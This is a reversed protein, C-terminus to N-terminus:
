CTFTYTKYDEDVILHVGSIPLSGSTNVIGIFSSNGSKLSTVNFNLYGVRPGNQRYIDAAKDADFAGINRVLIHTGNCSTISVEILNLEVIPYTSYESVWYWTGMAIMIAMAILLVEAVVPSVGKKM